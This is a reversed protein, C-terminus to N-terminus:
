LYSANAGNLLVFYLNSLYEFDRNNKWLLKLSGTLIKKSLIMIKKNLM